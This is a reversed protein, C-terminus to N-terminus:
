RNENKVYPNVDAYFLIVNHKWPFGIGSAFFNWNGTWNGLYSFIAIKNNDNIYTNNNPAEVKIKGKLHGMSSFYVISGRSTVIEKHLNDAISFGFPLFPLKCGIYRGEFDNDLASDLGIDMHREMQILEISSSSSLSKFTVTIKKGPKCNFEAITLYWIDGNKVRVINSLHKTVGIRIRTHNLFRFFLKGGLAIRYGFVTMDFLLASPIYFLFSINSNEFINETGNTLMLLCAQPEFDKETQQLMLFATVNITDNKHFIVKYQIVENKLQLENQDIIINDHFPIDKQATKSIIPRDPDVHHETKVNMFILLLISIILVIGSIIRKM